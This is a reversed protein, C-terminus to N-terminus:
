SRACLNWERVANSRGWEHFDPTDTRQAVGPGKFGCTACMFKCSLHLGTPLMREVFTPQGGCRPCLALDLVDIM